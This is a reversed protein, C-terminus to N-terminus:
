AAVCGIEPSKGTVTTVMSRIIMTAITTARDNLESRGVGTHCDLCGGNEKKAYEPTGWAFPVLSLATNLLVYLLPKM